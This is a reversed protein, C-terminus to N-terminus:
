LNLNSIDKLLDDKENNSLMEVERELEESQGVVEQVSINNIENIDMSAFEEILKKDLIDKDNEGKLTEKEAYEPKNMKFHIRPTQIVNKTKEIKNAEEKNENQPNIQPVQEQKNEPKEIINEKKETYQKESIFAVRYILAIIIVAAIPVLVRRFVPSKFLWIVSEFINFIKKNRKAEIREHIKPLLNNWYQPVPEVQKVSEVFEFAGKMQNYLKSIETNTRIAEEVVKVEESNLSGTIYDPLLIQIEKINIKNKM